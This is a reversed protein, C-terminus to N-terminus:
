DGRIMLNSKYEGSPMVSEHATGCVVGTNGGFNLCIEITNRFPREPHWSSQGHDQYSFFELEGNEDRKLVRHVSCTEDYAYDFEEAVYCGHDKTVDAPTASVIHSGLFSFAMGLVAIVAVLVVQRKM